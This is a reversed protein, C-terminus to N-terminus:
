PSDGNKIPFDVIFPWTWYSNQCLWLTGKSWTEQNKRPWSPALVFDHDWLHQRRGRSSSVVPVQSSTRTKVTNLISGLPQVLDREREREREGCTCIYIFNYIYVYKYLIICMCMSKCTSTHHIYLYVILICRCTRIVHIGFPGGGLKETM